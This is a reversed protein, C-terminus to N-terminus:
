IIKFIWVSLFGIGILSLLLINWIKNKFLGGDILFYLYLIPLSFVMPHHNFAGIFDFQLAKIAARTMGCGPCVFGFFKHFLCGIGAFYLIALILLYALTFIIKQIPNSIKM